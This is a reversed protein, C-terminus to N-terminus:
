RIIRVTVANPEAGTNMDFDFEGAKVGQVFARWEDVTYRHEPTSLDKSDRVAVGGGELPAVEVCSGGSCFSSRRYSHMDGGTM